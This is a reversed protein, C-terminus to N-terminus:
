KTKSFREMQAALAFQMFYSELDRLTTNFKDIGYVAYCFLEKALGIERLRGRWRSDSITLDFLELARHVAFNFRESNKGEAQAARGVESGINGMQELFSLKSWSDRLEQRIM